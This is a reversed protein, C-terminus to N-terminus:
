GLRRRCRCKGRPSTELFEYSKCKKSNNPYVSWCECDWYPKKALYYGMKDAETKLEEITM